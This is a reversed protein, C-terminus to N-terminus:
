RVLVMTREIAAAGNTLRCIYMGSAWRKGDILATYDGPRLIGDVLVALRQGLINFVELRVHQSAALAFRITTSPNFPNPYNQFLTMAAPAVADRPVAALVLTRGVYPVDVYSPDTTSSRVVSASHTFYPIIQARNQDYMDLSTIEVGIRHGAAIIHSLAQCEVTRQVDAGPAQDRVGNAGRSILTWTPVTGDSSVDFLRVHAQFHAADSRLHLMSQPTGTVELTDVLPASVYRHPVSQFAQIFSTGAYGDTWGQAPTYRADYMLGFAAEGSGAPITTTLSDGALYLRVSGHVPPPWSFSEHHPWGPRDDAYAVFPQDAYALPTDRLWRDFWQIMLTILYFYDPLYIQEGHGNTGFYSWVPILRSNLRSITRIAGNAPFLVDAWGASQIVPIRVSDLLQELDRGSAYAQLSDYQENVLQQRLQDKLPAYRVGALNMEFYFQQKICNAPFLDLAYSPPGVLSAIVKVGPMNRTAAMWAHIGGQSGGAVGLKDPNIGPLARLYQIVELLDESERDGMTTSLGGSNGQGRVSYTLCGYGFTTLYNSIPSMEDKNGGYGHILVVTPFGGEPPEGSPTTLTADLAIGDSVTILVNTSVQGRCMPALAAWLAVLAATRLRVTNM